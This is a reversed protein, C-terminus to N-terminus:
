FMHSLTVLTNNDRKDWSQLGGPDETWPIEWALISSYDNGEPNDRRSLWHQSPSIEAGQPAPQPWQTTSLQHIPHGPLDLVAESLHRTSQCLIKYLLTWHSREVSDSIYKRWSSPRLNTLCEISTWPVWFSFAGFLHNWNRLDPGPFLYLM